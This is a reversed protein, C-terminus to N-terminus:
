SHDWSGSCQQLHMGLIFHFHTLFFLIKFSCLFRLFFKTGPDSCHAIWWPTQKFGVQVQDEPPELLQHRKTTTRAQATDFHISGSSVLEKLFCVAQGASTNIGQLASSCHCPTLGVEVSQFCMTWCWSMRNDCICRQLSGPNQIFTVTFGVIVAELFLRWFWCYLSM